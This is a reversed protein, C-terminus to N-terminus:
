STAQRSCSRLGRVPFRPRRLEVLEADALRDGEGGRMAIAYAFQEFGDERFERVVGFLGLPSSPRWGRTAITPARVDALGRQDVRKGAFLADDHEVLRSSARGSQLATRARRSPL